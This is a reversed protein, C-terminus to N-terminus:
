RRPPSPDAPDSERRVRNGGAGRLIAAVAGVVRVIRHARKPIITLLAAPRVVETATIRGTPGSPV